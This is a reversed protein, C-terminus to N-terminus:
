HAAFPPFNQPLSHADDDDDDVGCLYANCHAQNFATPRPRKNADGERSWSLRLRPSPM